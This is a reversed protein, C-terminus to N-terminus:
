VGHISFQRAAARYRKFGVAREAAKSPRTRRLYMGRYDPGYPRSSFGIKRLELDVRDLWEEYSAMRRTKAM